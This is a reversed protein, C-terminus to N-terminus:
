SKRSLTISLNRDAQVIEEMRTKLLAIQKSLELCSPDEKFKVAKFFSVHYLKAVERIALMEALSDGVAILNAMVKSNEKIACFAQVKWTVPDGPFKEEYEDRASVVEIHRLLRAVQPMSERATQRVWELKANTVLMVRGREMCFELMETVKSDLLALEKDPIPKAELRLHSTPHLTDDWDFFFVTHKSGRETFELEEYIEPESTIKGKDPIDAPTDEVIDEVKAGPSM